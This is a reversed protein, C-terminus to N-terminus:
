DEKKFELIQNDIPRETVKYSKLTSLLVFLLVMGMIVGVMSSFLLEGVIMSFLILIFPVKMRKHLVKGIVLLELKHVIFFYILAIAIYYLSIQLAAVSILINVMLNGIVPILSFLTVMPIIIYWYPLFSGSYLYTIGLAFISISFTNMISILVQTTMIQRFSDFITYSFNYIKYQALSWLSDEKDSEDIEHYFVMLGLVVGLIVKLVAIGFDKVITMNETIYTGIYRYFDNINQIVGKGVNLKELTGIIVSESEKLFIGLDKLMYSFSVYVIYMLLAIILSSVISSLLKNKIKLKLFIEYVLSLVFLTFLMSFVFIAMKMYVVLVFVAVWFFASILDAYRNATIYDMKQSM